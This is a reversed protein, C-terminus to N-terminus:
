YLAAALRRRADRALPNEVGLEDLIGVVVRRIDDRAGDSGPLAQLLLDLALADDGADIASFAASLDPLEPRSGAAADRELGIRAVLGDGAFSGPVHGLVRLAEDIEGRGYLLRALPVAADARTPELAVAQRLSAEDGQAVLADAESPVLSDLFREIAAPPQAGVFEAAVDGNRFAKVAPISQIRYTRSLEQNADVDVKVLELKGARAAAGRELVPGIQRCPGCWEAWFDVVVPLAHSREIVASQFNNESVDM